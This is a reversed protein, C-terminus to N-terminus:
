DSAAEHEVPPRWGGGSGTAGEAIAEAMISVAIEAPTSASIDIGAPGHVRGLDTVGRYALWDARNEQMHRGGLSAIYGARSELAAMMATGAFELDHAAIVVKDLNSLTAIIGGAAARETVVRAQWGVVGALQALPEVVPNDGVIVLQPVARFVSIVEDETVTSGSAGSEFFAAAAQGADGINDATYAEAAVVEDGDLRCVVCVTQRAGALDWLGSALVEAPVMLCLATGRSPLGAIMAAVDDVELTLLRGGELRGAYDGLPGDLAGGLLSGVQGGGPTFAVADSPNAVEVGDWDLLWAVDARTGSRLCAAVSM